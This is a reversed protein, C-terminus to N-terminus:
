CGLEFRGNTASDASKVGVFQKFDTLKENKVRITIEYAVEGDEDHTLDDVCRPRGFSLMQYHQPDSPLRKMKGTEVMSVILEGRSDSPLWDKERLLANLGEGYVFFSALTNRAASYNPDRELPNHESSHAAEILSQCDKGSDHDALVQILESGLAHVKFVSYAPRSPDWLRCWGKQMESLVVSKGHQKLVDALVRRMFSERSM